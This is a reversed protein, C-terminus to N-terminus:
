HQQQYQFILSLSLLIRKQGDIGLSSDNRGNFGMCEKDEPQKAGWGGKGKPKKSGL